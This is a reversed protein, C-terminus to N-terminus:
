RECASERSRWLDWSAGFMSRFVQEHTLFSPVPYTHQQSRNRRGQPRPASSRQAPASSAVAVGATEDRSRLTCPSSNM